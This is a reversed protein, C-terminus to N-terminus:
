FGLKKALEELSGSGDPKRPWLGRSIVSGELLYTGMGADSAPLDQEMDNGVMLCHAPDVGIIDAVDLYYRISPKCSSMNELGPIIRFTGPDIGAWRVREMTAKVPFIPNTALALIYGNRSADDVFGAAGPVPNAYSRLSPFVESYFEGFRAEAEATGIGTLTHFTRYFGQHNTEGEPRPETMIADTGGFLGERFKGPDLIDSFIGHMAKFMPGLFFSVEINLLTGDLDLLLAKYDKM